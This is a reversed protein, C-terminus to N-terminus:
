KIVVFFCSKQLPLSVIFFNQAFRFSCAVSIILQSFFSINGRVFFCYFYYLILFEALNAFLFEIFLKLFILVVTLDSIVAMVCPFIPPIEYYRYDLVYSALLFKQLTGYYNQNHNENCLWSTPLLIRLDTQTDLLFCRSSCNKTGMLFFFSFMLVLAHLIFNM